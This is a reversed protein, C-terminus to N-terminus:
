MDKKRIMKLVGWKESTPTPPDPKDGFIKWPHNYGEIIPTDNVYFVLWPLVQRKLVWVGYQNQIMPYEGEAQTGFGVQIHTHDGTVHGSTGTHGLLEGQLLVKGVQGMYPPNNDHLFQFRVYQLTGNANWVKSVSQWVQQYGDSDSTSSYVLKVTVPAYIPDKTFTKGVCDIAYSGKHSLSGGVDQTMYLVELPFLVVDKGEYVLTQNPKM